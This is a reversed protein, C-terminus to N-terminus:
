KGFINNILARGEEAFQELTISGKLMEPPFSHPSVGPYQSLDFDEELLENDMDEDIVM